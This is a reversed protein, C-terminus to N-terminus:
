GRLSRWLTTAYPEFGQKQYFAIAVRNPAYANVFVHDVGQNTCWAIFEQVLRTGIGSKRHSEIVFMNDLEARKGTYIGNGKKLSGALYGVVKGDIEAIFCINGDEGSVVQRFYEEGNKEYPWQINLDHFHKQDWLFLEHNLDQVIRLDKSTALRIRIM